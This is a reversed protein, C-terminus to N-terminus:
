TRYVAHRDIQFFYANGILTRIAGVVHGFGFDRLVREVRAANEPSFDLDNLDVLIRRQELQPVELVRQLEESASTYGYFTRRLLEPARLREEVPRSFWYGVADGPDTL